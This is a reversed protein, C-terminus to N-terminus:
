LEWDTWAILGELSLRGDHRWAISPEQMKGVPCVRTVGWRALREVVSQAEHLSACLGVCSVKGCVEDAGGLADALADVAKVYLFRNQCSKQFHPENDFVVTWVTSDQSKWVLTDKSNAARIEYLRRRNAIMAAVRESVEGRPESQERREFADAILQALRDPSPTAGKEAYVVHPSLCGKQNWHAVDNVIQEALVRPNCDELGSKTAYTFSVRHGYPLFRKRHPLRAELAEVAKDSGMVTVCDAEQLLPAELAEDGGKWEVIELCAGLKPDTEYISHAFLRPLFSTSRACKVFQASRALLGLVISTIVPNPIVGGTVHAILEPGVAFSKRGTRSEAEGSSPHDLRRVHGLDQLILHNLNEPTMERFLGDLGKQITCLPFGSREMGHKLALQRLPYESDLWKEAVLGLTRLLTETPRGLLYQRRNRRLTECAESVVAPTLIAEAPLDALFYNPLEGLTMVRGAGVGFSRARDGSALRITDASPLDLWDDFVLGFLWADFLAERYVLAGDERDGLLQM